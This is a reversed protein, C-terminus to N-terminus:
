VGEPAKQLKRLFCSTTYIRTPVTRNVFGCRAARTAKHHATTSPESEDPLPGVADRPCVAHEPRDARISSQVEEPTMPKGCKPCISDNSM